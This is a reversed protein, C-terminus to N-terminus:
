DRQPVGSHFRFQSDPAEILSREVEGFFAVREDIPEGAYQAALALYDEFHRGESKVLSRYFKAM